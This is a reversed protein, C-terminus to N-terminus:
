YVFDATITNNNEALIAVVKIPRAGIKGDRYTAALKALEKMNLDSYNYPMRVGEVKFMEGQTFTQEVNNMVGKIKPRGTKHFREILTTQAMPSNIVRGGRLKGNTSEIIDFSPTVCILCFGSNAIESLSGGLLEQVDTCVIKGNFEIKIDGGSYTIQQNKFEPDLTEILNFQESKADILKEDLFKSNVYEATIDYDRVTTLNVGVSITTQGGKKFFQFYGNANIGWELNFLCKMTELWAGLTAKEFANNTIGSYSKVQSISYITLNEYDPDGMLENCWGNDVNYDSDFLVNSGTQSNIEGIVSEWVASFLCGNRITSSITDQQVEPKQYYKVGLSFDPYFDSFYVDNSLVFPYSPFQTFEFGRLILEGEIYDNNFKFSSYTSSLLYLGITNTLEVWESPNDPPYLNLNDDEISYFFREPDSGIRVIQAYGGLLHTYGLDEDYRRNATQYSKSSDWLLGSWVEPYVTQLGSVSGLNDFTEPYENSTPSNFNILDQWFCFFQASSITTNAQRNKSAGIWDFEVGYSDKIAKARDSQIASTKHTVTKTKSNFDNRSNQMVGEFITVGSNTLRIKLESRNLTEAYLLDFDNQGYPKSLANSFVLKDISEYVAFGDNDGGVQKTLKTQSLDPYFLTYDVDNLAIYLRYAM